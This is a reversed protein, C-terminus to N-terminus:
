SLNNYIYYILLYVKVQNCHAAIIKGDEKVFSWTKLSTANKNQSHNLKFIFTLRVDNNHTAHNNVNAAVALM